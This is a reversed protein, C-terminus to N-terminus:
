RSKPFLLKRVPKRQLVRAPLAVVRRVPKRALIARGISRVPQRDVVARIPAAVIAPRELRCTPGQCQGCLTLTLLMTPLM